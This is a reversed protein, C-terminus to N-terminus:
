KCASVASKFAAKVAARSAYNGGRIKDGICNNYASATKQFYVHLGRKPSISVMLGHKHSRPM